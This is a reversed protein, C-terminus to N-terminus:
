GGLARPQADDLAVSGMALARTAAEALATRMAPQLHGYVKRTTLLSEHGLQDQVMELTAGQEILWSAHSHRADHIRPGDFPQGKIYPSALGAARCAPVWVRERWWGHYIPGGRPATFLLADSPRDLLPALADVVQTALMVTRRSKASKPPGIERARGPTSKWAKVVRITRPSGPRVDGVTLATAESWRLGTGFLTVTLPRHAAPMASLLRQYEEHTLFREDRREAEGARPLRMRHCPNTGIHEAVVASALVASLLGHANRISKASLGKAELANVAKAIAARDIGDLPLDGLTPLWTRKAMAAYDLRTRDTVGTLQEIHQPLWEALTPVYGDDARDARNRSAIAAEPSTADVLKCFQIAAQRTPFTESTYRGHARVRVRWSKRGDRAVYETPTPM